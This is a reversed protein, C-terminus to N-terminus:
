RVDRPYSGYIYHRQLPYPKGVTLDPIPYLCPEQNLFLHNKKVSEPEYIPQSLIPGELIEGFMPHCFQVRVGGIM